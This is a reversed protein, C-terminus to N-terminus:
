LIVRTIKAPEKGPNLPSKQLYIKIKAGIKLRGTKKYRRYEEPTLLIKEGNNTKITIPNKKYEIEKIEGEIEVEPLNLFNKFNM